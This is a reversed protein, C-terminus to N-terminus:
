KRKKCKELVFIWYNQKLLCVFFYSTNKLCLFGGFFHDVLVVDLDTAEDANEATGASILDADDSSDDVGVANEELVGFVVLHPAVDLGDLVDLGGLEANGEGGVGGGLLDLIGEGLLVDEGLEGGGVLSLADGGLLGESGGGFEFAVLEAGGEALTGGDGALDELGLIGLGVDGEVARGEVLELLSVLLELGLLESSAVVADLLEEGLLLSLAGALTLVSTLSALFLCSLVM